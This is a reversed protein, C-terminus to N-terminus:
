LAPALWSSTKGGGTPSDNVGVFSPEERFLQQLRNQHGYPPYDFTYPEDHTRLAVGELNITTM